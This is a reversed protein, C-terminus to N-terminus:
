FFLKSNKGIFRRVSQVASFLQNKVTHRSINLEDAIQQYNLGEEKNLQYILRRQPPLQDIAKQIIANYEKAAVHEETENMIQQLGAWIKEKLRQDAAAKRLFDIVKNETLRYLWAEMNHINEIAERQEWLKLFVEQIIDAATQESKTMQMALAYLRHEHQRFISSFLTELTNEHANHDATRM